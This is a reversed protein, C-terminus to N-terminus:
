EVVRLMTIEGRGVWDGLPADAQSVFGVKEYLRIAPTNDPRVSLWAERLDAETAARLLARLLAEGLGKRRYAELVTLAVIGLGAAERRGRDLRGYGVLRGNARAYFVFGQEPSRLGDFAAANEPGVLAPDFGAELDNQRLLALVDAAGAAGAAVLEARVPGLVPTAAIGPLNLSRGDALLLRVEHEASDRVRSPLPLSFGCDPAALGAEAVDSRRRDATVPLRHERDISVVFRVPRAPQAVESVWGALVPDVADVHGRYGSLIGDRRSM